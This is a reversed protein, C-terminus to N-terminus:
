CNRLEGSVDNMESDSNLFIKVAGDGLAIDKDEKCINEFTYMHRGKEFMDFPCIFSVYSSNLQKYSQGKDISRM